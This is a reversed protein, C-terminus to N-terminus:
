YQRVVEAVRHPAFSAKSEGPHLIVDYSGCKGRSLALVENATNNFASKMPYPDKTCPEEPEVHITGSFDRGEWVCASGAKCAQM